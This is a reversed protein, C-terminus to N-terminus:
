KNKWAVKVLHGLSDHDNNVAVQLFREYDSVWTTINVYKHTLNLLQLLLDTLHRFLCPIVYKWNIYMKKKTRGCWLRMFNIMHTISSTQSSLCIYSRNSLWVFLKIGCQYQPQPVSCTEGQHCPMRHCKKSCIYLSGHSAFYDPTFPSTRLSMSSGVINVFLQVLTIWSSM